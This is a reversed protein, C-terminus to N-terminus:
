DGGTLAAVLHHGASEIHRQVAREAAQPDRAEFAEVIALHEAVDQEGRGPVSASATQRFNSWLMSPFATWMQLLTRVLFPHRSAEFIINHFRRNLERYETLYKPGLRNRMREFVARLEALEGDTINEAAYRAAMGEISVRCAYLDKVDTVSLEVVRVGRYPVHEILGEAVLQKFAERVPMQSVGFDSALQEQRLWEGSRIHGELILARLREAVQQRLQKRSVTIDDNWM